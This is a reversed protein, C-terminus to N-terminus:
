TIRALRRCWGYVRRLPATVKWSMSERLATVEARLHAVSERLARTEGRADGRAADRSTEGWSAPSGRLLDRERRREALRPLLETELRRERERNGRLLDSIEVDKALLVDVLHARYSAAHKAVLYRVQDLRVKGESAVRRMSGARQRYNLMAEPVITGRGGREVLSIWLDWDEDGQAPMAGDYGGAALVADRRVLAATMVTCEALLAPLDCRDRKWLWTEEGFLQVWASVFTLSADADLLRVARELYTPALTDDADLACLYRGTTHAIALNRAAALGRNATTIVRTKPRRYDALLRNTAPDTSGDNVIVIEVDEFTQALVSAVAEDVYQGLNYCPILVSVRPATV